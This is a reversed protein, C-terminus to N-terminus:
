LFLSVNMVHSAQALHQCFGEMHGTFSLMGGMYIGLGEGSNRDTVLAGSDGPQGPKALFLRLPIGPDMSGRGLQVEVIKTQVLGSRAGVFQVDTWQPILQPKKQPNLPQPHSSGGQPEILAADIGEAALDLVTGPMANGAGDQLTVCSGLGAAGAPQMQLVHKATLLAQKNAINPKNSRAWCASTGYLPHLNPPAHFVEQAYRLLVPFEEGDVELSPLNVELPGSLADFPLHAYILVGFADKEHEPDAFGCTAFRFGRVERWVGSLFFAQELALTWLVARRAEDTFREMASYTDSSLSMFTDKFREESPWSRPILDLGGSKETDM